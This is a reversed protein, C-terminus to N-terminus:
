KINAFAPPDVCGTGPELTPDREFYINFALCGAKATCKQACTAVDYTQVVSYGLYADTLLNM